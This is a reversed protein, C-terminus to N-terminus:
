NASAADDSRLASSLRDVVAIILWVVLGGVFVTALEIAPLTLLEEPTPM